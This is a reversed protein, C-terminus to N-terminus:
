SSIISVIIFRGEPVNRLTDASCDELEDDDINYESESSSIQQDISEDSSTEQPVTKIVKEQLVKKKIMKKSSKKLTSAKKAAEIAEKEPTDTAIMCRGKRRGRNNINSKRPAAKPFPSIKQLSVYSDTSKQCSSTAIKKGIGVEGVKNLTKSTGPVHSSTSPLNINLDASHTSSISPTRSPTRVGTPIAPTM